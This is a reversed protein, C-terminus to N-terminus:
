NYFRKMLYSMFNDNEGISFITEIKKGSTTNKGSPVTRKNYSFCVSFDGHEEIYKRKDSPKEITGLEGRNILDGYPPPFSKVDLTMLISDIGSKMLLRSAPIDDSVREALSVKAHIAAIVGWGSNDLGVGKGIQEVILDIKSSGISDSLGIKNLIRIKENHSILSKIRIDKKLLFKNYQNELFLEFAEGSTRVWSQEPDTGTKNELYIRYICHHWIDSINENPWQKIAKIFTHAIVERSKTASNNILSTMYVSIKNYEILNVNDFFQTHDSASYEDGPIHVETARNNSLKNSFEYWSIGLNAIIQNLNSVSINRDGNEIGSIYTRHLGCIEAFAEQSLGKNERISKITQGFKRLFGEDIM